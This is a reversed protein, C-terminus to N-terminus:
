ARLPSEVKPGDHEPFCIALYKLTPIEGMLKPICLDRSQGVCGYESCSDAAFNTRRDPPAIVDFGVWGNM